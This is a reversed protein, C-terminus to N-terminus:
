DQVQVIKSLFGHVESSDIEKVVYFDGENRVIEADGVYVGDDESVVGTYSVGHEDTVTIEEGITFADESINM